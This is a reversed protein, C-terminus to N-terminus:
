QLVEFEDEEFKRSVVSYSNHDFIYKAERKHAQQNPSERRKRISFRLLIVESFGYVIKKRKHFVRIAYKDSVVFFVSSSVRNDM